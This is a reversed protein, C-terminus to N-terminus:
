EIYTPSSGSETNFFFISSAFLSQRAMGGRRAGFIKGKGFNLEIEEMRLNKHTEM